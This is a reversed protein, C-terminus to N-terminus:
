QGDRKSGFIMSYLDTTPGNATIGYATPVDPEPPPAPPAAPQQTVQVAAPQAPAPQASGPQQTRYSALVQSPGSGRPGSVAVQQVPQAAVPQSAAVTTAPASQRPGFIETYLDTTTGESSIGYMTKYPQEGQSSAQASTANNAAACGAVITAVAALATATRICSLVNIL